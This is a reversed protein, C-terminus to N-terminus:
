FHVKRKPIKIKKEFEETRLCHLLEYDSFVLSSIDLIEDLDCDGSLSNKTLINPMTVLESMKISNSNLTGHNENASVEMVQGITNHSPNGVDNMEHLRCAKWRIKM